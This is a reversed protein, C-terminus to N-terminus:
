GRIISLVATVVMIIFFINFIDVLSVKGYFIDVDLAEFVGKFGSTIIEFGTVNDLTQSIGDNYGENYGINHGNQYGLEYSNLNKNEIWLQFNEIVTKEAPNEPIIRIIYYYDNKEYSSGFYQCPGYPYGTNIDWKFKTEGSKLTISQNLKYKTAQPTQNQRNTTYSYGIDISKVNTMNTWTLFYNIDEYIPANSASIMFGLAQQIQPDTSANKIGAETGQNVPKGEFNESIYTFNSGFLDVIIDETEAYNNLDTIKESLNINIGDNYGQNYGNEYGTKEGDEEGKEHGDNYANEYLSNLLIKSTEYYYGYTTTGDSITFEGIIAEGNNNGSKLYLALIIINSNNKEINFSDNIYNTQYNKTFGNNNSIITENATTYINITITLNKNEIPANDVYITWPVRNEDTTTISVIGNEFKVYDEVYKNYDTNVEEETAASATPYNTFTWIPLISLIIM